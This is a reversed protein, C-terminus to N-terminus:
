VKGACNGFDVSESIEWFKRVEMLKEKESRLLSSEANETQLTIYKEQLTAIQQKLENRTKGENKLLDKLTKNKNLQEVLEDEAKVRKKNEDKLRNEYDEFKGV